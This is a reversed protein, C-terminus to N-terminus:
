YWKRHEVCKDLRDHQQGIKNEDYVGGSWITEPLQTKIESYVLGIRNIVDNDQATKM